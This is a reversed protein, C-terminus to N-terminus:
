LSNELRVKTYTDLFTMAVVQIAWVTGWVAYKNPSLNRPLHFRLACVMLAIPVMFGGKEQSKITTITAIGAIPGVVFNSLLTLTYYFHWAGASIISKRVCTMMFAAMQIPFVTAFVEDIGGFLCNATAFIQSASYFYNIAPKYVNPLYDPYPMSRITSSNEGKCAETVLDALYMNLLTVGGRIYLPLTSNLRHAAIQLLMIILSRSAFLISHLRFEPYIMPSSKIRKFPIHFILSSTSLVIHFVVLAVTFWSDDFGMSGTSLLMGFRYTFHITSLIGLVKHLHTYDEKTILKGLNWVRVLVMDVLAAGLSTGKDSPLGVFKMKPTSPSSSSNADRFRKVGVKRDVSAGKGFERCKGGQVTPICM